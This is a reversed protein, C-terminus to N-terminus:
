LSGSPPRLPVPGVFQIVRLYTLIETEPWIYRFWIDFRFMWKGPSLKHVACLNATTWFVIWNANVREMGEARGKGEVGGTLQAFIADTNHVLFYCRGSNWWICNQPQSFQDCTENTKQNYFQVTIIADCRPGKSVIVLLLKSLCIM